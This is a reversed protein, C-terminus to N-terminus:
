RRMAAQDKAEEDTFIPVANSKHLTGIGKMATGTYVKGHIPKTCSGGLTVLSPYKPSERVFPKSQKLPEIKGKVVLGKSFNTKTSNVQKLWAEYEAIQKKTKTKKKSKQYTYIISMHLTQEM